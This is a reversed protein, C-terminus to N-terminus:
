NNKVIEIYSIYCYLSMFLDAILISYVYLLDDWDKFYALSIINFSMFIIFLTYILFAKQYKLSHEINNLISSYLFCTSSVVTLGALYSDMNVLEPNSIVYLYFVLYSSLPFLALISM